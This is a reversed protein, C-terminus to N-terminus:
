FDFYCIWSFHYNWFLLYPLLDQLFEVPPEGNAKGNRSNTIFFGFFCGYISFNRYHHLHLIGVFTKQTKTLNM